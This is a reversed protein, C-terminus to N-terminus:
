SGHEQALLHDVLDRVMAERPKRYVLYGKYLLPHENYACDILVLTGQDLEEQVLSQQILGAGFGQKILELQLRPHETQINCPISHFLEEALQTATTGYEQRIIAPTSRISTLLNDRFTFQHEPAAVLLLDEQVYPIAEVDQPKPLVYVLGLDVSGESVEGLIKKSTSRRLNYFVQPHARAYSLVDKSFPGFDWSTVPASISLLHDFRHYSQMFSESENVIQFIQTAYSLFHVGAPSLEVAKNSRIFLTQGLEEELAKIRVTVTPQSIFLLEATKNFNKTESLSLFTKIADFNMRDGKGGSCLVYNKRIM